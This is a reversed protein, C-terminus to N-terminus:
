KDRESWGEVGSRAEGGWGMLSMWVQEGSGERGGGGGGCRWIGHHHPVVTGQLDRLRSAFVRSETLISQRVQSSSPRGRSSPDDSAPFLPPSTLKVALKPRAKRDSLMDSCSGDESRSPELSSISPLPSISGLYTDWIAGSGVARDIRLKVVTSESVAGPVAKRTEDLWGEREEEGGDDDGKGDGDEDAGGGASEEFGVSEYDTEVDLSMSMSMPASFTRPYRGLLDIFRNLSNQDFSLELWDLELEIEIPPLPWQTPFPILPSPSPLFDADASSSVLDHHRRYRLAPPQSLICPSRYIESQGKFPGAQVM